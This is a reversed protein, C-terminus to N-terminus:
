DTQNLLKWLSSRLGEMTRSCESIAGVLINIRASLASLRSQTWTPTGDDISSLLQTLDILNMALEESTTAFAKAKLKYDSLMQANLNESEM